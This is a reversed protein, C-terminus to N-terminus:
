GVDALGLGDREINEGATVDSPEAFCSAKCPSRTSSATRVARSWRPLVAFPKATTRSGNQMAPAGPVFLTVRVVPEAVIGTYVFARDAV